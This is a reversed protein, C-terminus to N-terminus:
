RLMASQCHLTYRCAAETRIIDCGQNINM